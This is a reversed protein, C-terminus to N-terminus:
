VLKFLEFNIGLDLTVFNTGKRFFAVLLDAIELHVYKFRLICETWKVIFSFFISFISQEYTTDERFVPFFKRSPFQFCPLFFLSYTIHIYYSEQFCPFDKVKPWFLM